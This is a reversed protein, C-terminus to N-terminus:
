LRKGSAVKEIIRDLNKEIIDKPNKDNEMAFSVFNFLLTTITVEKEKAIGACRMSSNLQMNDKEVSITIKGKNKESFM